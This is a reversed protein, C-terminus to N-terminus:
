TDKLIQAPTSMLSERTIEEVQQMVYGHIFQQFIQGIALIDGSKRCDRNITNEITKDAENRSFSNSNTMQVSFDGACLTHYSEPNELPLFRMDNLYPLLFRAYKQHDYAFAWPIIEEICAM